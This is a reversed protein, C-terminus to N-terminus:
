VPCGSVLIIAKFPSTQVSVCGGVIPRKQIRGDGGGTWARILGRRDSRPAKAKGLFGSDGVIANDRAGPLVSDEGGYPKKEAWRPWRFIRLTLFSM